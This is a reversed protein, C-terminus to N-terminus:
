VLAAALRNFATPTRALTNENPHNTETTGVIVVGDVTARVNIYEHKYTSQKTLGRYM